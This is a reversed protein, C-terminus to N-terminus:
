TGYIEWVEHPTQSNFEIEWAFDPPGDNESAKRDNPVATDDFTAFRCNKVPCLVNM